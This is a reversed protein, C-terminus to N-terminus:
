VINEKIVKKVRNYLENSKNIEEISIFRQQHIGSMYIFNNTSNIRSLTYGRGNKLLIYIIEVPVEIIVDSVNLTTQNSIYDVFIEMGYLDENNELRKIIDENKSISQGHHEFEKYKIFEIYTDIDDTGVYTSKMIDITSIDELNIINEENLKLLSAM